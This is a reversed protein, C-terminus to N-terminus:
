PEFGHRKQRKGNKREKKELKSLIDRLKDIVKEKEARETLYELDIEGAYKKLLFQAMECDGKSKWFVCALLRDVILDEIGIVYVEGGLEPLEVRRVRNLDGALHRDPVEVFLGLEESVFFRGEERFYGSSLLIDKILDRSGILDIDGSVYRGLTYIEVASGGVIVPPQKGREKVKRTLWSGFALLKAVEDETEKVVRLESEM